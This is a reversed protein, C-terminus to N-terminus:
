TRSRVQEGSRLEAFLPSSVCTFAILASLNTDLMEPGYSRLTQGVQGNPNVNVFAM